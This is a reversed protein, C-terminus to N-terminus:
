ITKKKKWVFLNYYDILKNILNDNGGEKVCKYKWVIDCPPDDKLCNQPESVILSHTKGPGCL